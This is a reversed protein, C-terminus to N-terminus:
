NSGNRGVRRSPTTSRCFGALNQRLAREIADSFTLSLVGPTPKAEPVSGYVPNQVSTPIQNPGTPVASQAVARVSFPLILGVLYVGTLCRLYRILVNVSLM